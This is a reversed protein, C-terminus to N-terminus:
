DMEDSYNTSIRKRKGEKIRKSLQFINDAKFLPELMCLEYIIAGLSWVDSKDDYMTNEVLEPSM